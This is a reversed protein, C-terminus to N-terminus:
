RRLLSWLRKIAFSIVSSTAVSVQMPVAGPNAHCTGGGHGKGRAARLRESSLPPKRTELGPFQFVQRRLLPPRDYHVLFYSDHVLLMRSMSLETRERPVVDDEMTFDMRTARRSHVQFLFTDPIWGISVHGPLVGRSLRPPILSTSHKPANPRFIKM